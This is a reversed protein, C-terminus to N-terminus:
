AVGPMRAFTKGRDTRNQVQCRLTQHQSRARHQDRRVSGASQSAQLALFCPHQRQQGGSIAPCYRGRHQAIDLAGRFRPAFAVITEGIDMQRMRPQTLRL